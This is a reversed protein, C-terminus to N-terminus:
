CSKPRTRGRRLPMCGNWREGLVIRSPRPAHRISWLSGYAYSPGSASGEGAPSSATGHAMLRRWNVVVVDVSWGIMRRRGVRSRGIV